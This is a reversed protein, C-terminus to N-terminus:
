KDGKSWEDRQENQTKGYYDKAYLKVLNDISGKKQLVAEVANYLVNVAEQKVLVNDRAEQVERNDVVLAEIVSETIKLGEPPQRRIALEIQAKTADYNAKARDLETRASVLPTSYFEYLSPQVANEEELNSQDIQIDATLDGFTRL